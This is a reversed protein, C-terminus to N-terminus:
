RPAAGAAQEAAALTARYREIRAGGLDVARRAAHRAAVSQGAHLRALALNNWADAADPQLRVAQELAQTAQSIDQLQLATTGFGFWAAYLQPERRTLAGYATQAARLDGRELAAIALVLETAQASVPLRAPAVAVMSWYGSRAWTREFVAVSLRARATTGSHLILEQRAPDFGIALAYHWRPLVPLALNQLVIVPTGAQLEALLADLRPPLVVALRGHRRASALMEPQLSGERAPLYVQAVLESALVQVGSAQLAMALAAPGCQYGDQAVFPVDDLLTAPLGPREQLAATHPPTACALMLSATLAAVGSRAWVFVGAAAPANANGPGTM